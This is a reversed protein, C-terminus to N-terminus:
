VRQPGRILRGPLVGTAEGNRYIIQGRKVTATYGDARQVLRRGGAPLDFVMEPAHLTLNDFDIGNLDALMGPEITGRDHLGVQRATDRCQRRVVHELPLRDGRTRDRVWHTLMYTPYSADCIVGCHAGGDSLGPVTHESLNMQRIVELDGDTFNALPFLMLEKGDRQLLVDYAMEVAAIGAAAARAEISHEPMPEYDPPDGLPFMKHFSQAVIGSMGRTRQAHEDILAARVQPERMRAVREALPLSSLERRYTPCTIFPHMSSELGLLLCVPRIAVQATLDHGAARAEGIRRLVEQWRDPAQDNQVLLISLPADAGDALGRFIEFEKDLDVFDSVIELHGFGADRLAQSIGWLEAPASTLTPIQNGDRDRHNITRSTTFGLAGARLAEATLRRMEAIEEATAEEEHDRGRDGMVYVRLASHPMQAGVDIAHPIAEIADLYQPFSEWDFTVGEALAAGPIDEVGEMVSILFEHRDPRVPAFGVGCNGMVISTVGHWSSPTLAPDWVVQGDYHTHIDVFGPTVLQGSADIETRGPVTVEGVATIREGDIAIDALRAPAGTGDVVRGNRIILDHM